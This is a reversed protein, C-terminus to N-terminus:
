SSKNTNYYYRKHDPLELASPSMQYVAFYNNITDDNGNIEKYVARSSSSKPESESPLKEVTQYQRFRDEELEREERRQREAEEM